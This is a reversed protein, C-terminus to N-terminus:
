DNRGLRLACLYAQHWRNAAKLLCAAANTYRLRRSCCIPETMPLTDRISEVREMAAYCARNRAWFTSAGAIM